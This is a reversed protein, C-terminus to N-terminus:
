VLLKVTKENREFLTNKEIHILKEQSKYKSKNM